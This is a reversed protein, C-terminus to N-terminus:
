LELGEFYLVLTSAKEKYNILARTHTNTQTYLSFTVPSYHEGIPFLIFTGCPLWMQGELQIFGDVLFYSINEPLCM